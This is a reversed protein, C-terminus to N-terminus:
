WEDFQVSVKANELLITLSLQVNDLFIHVTSFYREEDYALYVGLSMLRPPFSSVTPSLECNWRM